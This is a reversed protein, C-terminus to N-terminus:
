KELWALNLDSVQSREYFFCKSIKFKLVSFFKLLSEQKIQRLDHKLIQISDDVKKNGISALRLQSELLVVVSLPRFVDFVM